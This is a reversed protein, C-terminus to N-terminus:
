SFLSSHHHRGTDSLFWLQHHISVRHRITCQLRAQNTRQEDCRREYAHLDADPDTRSHSNREGLLKLDQKYEELKEQKKALDKLLKGCSPDVKEKKQNEENFAEIRSKLASSDLPVRTEDEQFQSDQAIGEELPSLVPAIKSALNAKNKELVTKEYL